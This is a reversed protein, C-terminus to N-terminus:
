VNREMERALENVRKMDGSKYAKLLPYYYKTSKGEGIYPIRIIGSAKDEKRMTLLTNYSIGLIDAAQKISVWDSKIAIDIKDKNKSVGIDNLYFQELELAYSDLKNDKLIRIFNKIAQPFTKVVKMGFVIQNFKSVPSFSLNKCKIDDLIFLNNWLVSSFNINEFVIKGGFIINEFAAYLKDVRSLNFEAKEAFNCNKMTLVNYISSEVNSITVACNFTCKEFKLVCVIPHYTNEPYSYYYVSCNFICNKFFVSKSNIDVTEVNFICNEFVITRISDWGFLTSKIIRYEYESCFEIDKFHVEINYFNEVEVHLQPYLNEYETQAVVREFAYESQFKDLWDSIKKNDNESDKSKITSKRTTKTNKQESIIFVTALISLFCNLANPYYEAYQDAYTDNLTILGKQKSPLRLLFKKLEALESEKCINEKGTIDEYCNILEKISSGANDFDQEPCLEYVPSYIKIFNVAFTLVEAMNNGYVLKKYDVAWSLSKIYERLVKNHLYNGFEKTDGRTFQRDCKHMHLSPIDYKIAPFNSPYDEQQTYSNNAIQYESFRVLNRM